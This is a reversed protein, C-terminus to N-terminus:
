SYSPTIWGVKAPVPENKARQNGVVVKELL